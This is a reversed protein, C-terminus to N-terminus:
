VHFAMRGCGGGTPRFATTGDPGCAHLAGRATAAIYHEIGDLV